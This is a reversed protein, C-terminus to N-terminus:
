TVNTIRAFENAERYEMQTRNLPNGRLTDMIRRAEAIAIPTPTARDAARWVRLPTTDVAWDTRLVNRTPWVTGHDEVPPYQAARERDSIAAARHRALWRDIQVDTQHEVDGNEHILLGDGDSFIEITYPPYSIRDNM